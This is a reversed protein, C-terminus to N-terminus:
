KSATWGLAGPYAKLQHQTKDQCKQLKGFVERSLIIQGEHGCDILWSAWYTHGVNWGVCVFGFGPFWIILLHGSFMGVYLIHLSFSHTYFPHFSVFDKYNFQLNLINWNVRCEPHNIWLRTRATLEAVYKRLWREWQPDDSFFTGGEWSKQMSVNVLHASCQRTQMCGWLAVPACWSSVGQLCLRHFNANGGGALHPFVVKRVQSEAGKQLTKMIELAYSSDRLHKM